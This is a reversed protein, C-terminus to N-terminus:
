LEAEEVWKRKWSHKDLQCKTVYGFGKIPCDKDDCIKGLSVLKEKSM